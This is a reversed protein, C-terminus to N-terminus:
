GIYEGNVEEHKGNGDCGPIKVILNIEKQLNQLYGPLNKKSFIHNNPVAERGGM